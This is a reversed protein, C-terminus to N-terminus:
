GRRRRRREGGDDGTSIIEKPPPLTVATSLNPFSATKHPIAMAEVFHQQFM